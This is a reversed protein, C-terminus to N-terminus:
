FPLSYKEISQSLLSIDPLRPKTETISEVTQNCRVVVFHAAQVSLNIPRTPLLALVCHKDQIYITWVPINDNGYPVLDNWALTSNPISVQRNKPTIVYFRPDLDSKQFTLKNWISYNGYYLNVPSHQRRHSIDINITSWQSDWQGLEWYQPRVLRVVDSCGGPSKGQVSSVLRADEM